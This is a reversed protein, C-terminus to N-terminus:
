IVTASLVVQMQCYHHYSYHVVVVVEVESSDVVVAVVVAAAAAVVVVVVVINRIYALGARCHEAIVHVVAAAVAANCLIWQFNMAFQDTKGKRHCAPVAEQVTTDKHYDLDEGALDGIDALVEITVAV